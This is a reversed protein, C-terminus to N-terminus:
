TKEGAYNFYAQKVNCVICKNSRVDVMGDSKCTACYRAKEGAYTLNAIKGCACFSPM